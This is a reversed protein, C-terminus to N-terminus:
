TKEGRESFYEKLIRRIATSDHEILEEDKYQELKKYTEEDLVVLIKKTKRKPKNTEM